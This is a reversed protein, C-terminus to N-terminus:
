TSSTTAAASSRTRRRWSPAKGKKRKAQILERLAETYHDKFASPDFPATKREILEEALDVLEKDAAPTPSTRSFPDSKRMEEEYHLTELLMGKGCPKLAGLYEKGRMVLQGLGVKKTKKLADRM